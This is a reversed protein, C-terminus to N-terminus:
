MNAIAGAPSVPPVVEETSCGPVAAASAEHRLPRRLARFPVVLNVLCSRTLLSMALLRPGEEHRSYEIVITICLIGM